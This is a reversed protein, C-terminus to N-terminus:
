EDDNHDANFMKNNRFNTDIITKQNIWYALSKVTTVNGMLPLPRVPPVHANTPSLLYVDHMCLMESSLCSAFSSSSYKNQEIGASSSCLPYSSFLFSLEVVPIIRDTLKDHLKFKDGFAPEDDRTSKDGLTSKDDLMSKDDLTSKDGLTAATAIDQRLRRTFVPLM